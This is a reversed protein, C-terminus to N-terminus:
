SFATKWHGRLPNRHQPRHRPTRMARRIIQRFVHPRLNPRNRTLCNVISQPSQRLMTQNPPNLRRSRRRPILIPYTIIVMVQDTSAASLHDIDITCGPLRRTQINHVIRSILNILRLHHVPPGARLAELCSLSNEFSCICFHCVVINALARHHAPHIRLVGATAGGVLIPPRILQVQFDQALSRLVGPVLLWPM